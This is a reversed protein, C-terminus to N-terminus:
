LEWDIIDIHNGEGRFVFFFFFFAYTNINKSWSTLLGVFVVTCYLAPCCHSRSSQTNRVSLGLFMRNAILQLCKVVKNQVYEM